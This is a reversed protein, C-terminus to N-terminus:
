WVEEGAPPGWDTEGDGHMNQPTIQSVLAELTLTEKALTIVIQHDTVSVEVKSEQRIGVRDAIPKPIRLALSNGWRQVRTQM